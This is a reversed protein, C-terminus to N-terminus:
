VLEKGDGSEKKKGFISKKKEKKEVKPDRASTFLSKLSLAITLIWRSELVLRTRPVGAPAACCM